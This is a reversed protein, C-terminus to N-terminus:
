VECGCRGMVPVFVEAEVQRRVSGSILEIAEDEVAMADLDPSDPTQGQTGGGAAQEGSDGGRGAARAAIEGGDGISPDSEPVDHTTAEPSGTATVDAAKRGVANGPSEQEGASSGEAATADADAATATAHSKASARM